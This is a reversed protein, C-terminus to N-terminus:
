HVFNFARKESNSSIAHFYYEKTIHKLQLARQTEYCLIFLTHM